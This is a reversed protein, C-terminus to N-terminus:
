PLQLQQPPLFSLSFTMKSMKKRRKSSSLLRLKLMSILPFYIMKLLQQLLQLQLKQNNRHMLKFQNPSLPVAMPPLLYYAILNLNDHLTHLQHPPLHPLRLQLPLYLRLQLLPQFLLSNKLLVRRLSQRTLLHLVMGPGDVLNMSLDSSPTWKALFTNAM